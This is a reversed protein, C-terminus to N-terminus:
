KLNKKVPAQAYGVFFYMYMFYFLTLFLVYYEFLVLMKMGAPTLQTVFFLSYWSGGAIIPGFKMSMVKYTMLIANLVIVFMLFAQVMLTQSLPLVATAIKILITLILIGMGIRLVTYVIHMLRKESDDIVGDKLASIFFILAFTSSGVGFTLGIALFLDVFVQLVMGVTYVM